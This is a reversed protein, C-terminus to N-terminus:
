KYTFPTTGSGCVWWWWMVLFDGGEATAGCAHRRTPGEGRGRLDVLFITLRYPGWLRLSRINQALSLSFLPQAFPCPWPSLRNTALLGFCDMDSSDSPFLFCMFSFSFNSNHGLRESAMAKCAGVYYWIRQCNNLGGMELGLLSFLSGGVRERM